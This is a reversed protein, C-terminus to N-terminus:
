SRRLARGRATRYEALWAEIRRLDDIVFRVVEAGTERVADERLKEQWVDGIERYKGRGDAEIVVGVDDRLDVRFRGRRTRIWVQAEPAPFGALIISGRALSEIPTEALRIAHDAVWLADRHGPARPHRDAASRLSAPTQSWHRAAADAVALGWLRGLHRTCDVVTRAPTTVVLGAATTLEDDDLWARRRTCDACHGAAGQGTARRPDVTVIREPVQPLPLGLALAATGAVGVAGPRALQEARARLLHRGADDLDDWLSPRCYVARRLRCLRGARAAGRLQDISLGAAAATATTFPGTQLSEVQPSTWSSM